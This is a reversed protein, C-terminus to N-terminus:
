RRHYNGIRAIRFKAQGMVINPPKPAYTSTPGGTSHSNPNGGVLTGSKAFVSNAFM